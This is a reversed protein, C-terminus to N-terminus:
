VAVIAEFDYGAVNSNIPLVTLELSTSYMM